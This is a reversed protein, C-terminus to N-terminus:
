QQEAMQKKIQVIFSEVAGAESTNPFLQLFDEYLSIAERYRKQREYILGLLQYVVMADPSSGLQKVATALHKISEDYNARESEFDSSGGANEAREKYLLGLGTYAEPQFGKGLTIARKFAAIAKAEDGGDKLLRGEVATAEADTPRIRKASQLAKYANEIEGRDSYARALALHAAFHRPRLKIARNYEGIAKERDVGVLTEGSQFALDAEDTTKTLKISVEGRATAPLSQNAEAFGAGRVRISRVGAPIGSIELRGSDDTVGYRVGDIWVTSRPETVVTIPRLAAAKRPQALISPSFLLCLLTAFLFSRHQRLIHRIAHSNM